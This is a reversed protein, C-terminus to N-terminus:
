SDSTKRKKEARRIADLPMLLAYMQAPTQAHFLADRQLETGVTGYRARLVYRFQDLGIGRPQLHMLEPVVRRFTLNIRGQRYAPHTAKIAPVGHKFGDQAMGAMQLLSGSELLMTARSASQNATVVFDREGGLSVSHVVFDQGLWPDSDNHPAVSDKGNRYFNVLVSNYHDVPLTPLPPTATEREANLQNILLRRVLLLEETWPNAALGRPSFEGTSVTVGGLSSASFAYTADPLSSFWKMLRANRIITNFPEGREYMEDFDIRSLTDYLRDALDHPIFGRVYHLRAVTERGRKDVNVLTTTATPEM